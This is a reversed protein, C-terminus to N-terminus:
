RQRCTPPAPTAKQCRISSPKAPRGATGPYARGGKRWHDPEKADEVEEGEREPHALDRAEGEDHRGGDEADEARRARAVYDRGDKGAVVREPRGRARDRERAPDHEPAPRRRPAPPRTGHEHEREPERSGQP